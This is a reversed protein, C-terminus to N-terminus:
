RAPHSRWPLLLVAVRRVQVGTTRVSEGGDTHVEANGAENM